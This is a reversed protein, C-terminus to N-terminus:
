LYNSSYGQARRDSRAFFFRFVHNNYRSSDFKDFHFVFIAPKPIILLLRSRNLYMPAMTNSEDAVRSHSQEFRINPRLLLTSICEFTVWKRRWLDGYGDFNTFASWHCRVPHSEIPVTTRLLTKETVGESNM